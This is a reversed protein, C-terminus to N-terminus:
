LVKTGRLYDSIVLNTVPMDEYKESCLYGKMTVLIRRQTEKQGMKLALIARIERWAPSSAATEDTIKKEPHTDDSEDSPLLPPVATPASEAEVLETVNPATGTPCVALVLTETTFWPEADTTIECTLTLPCDKEAFGCPLRGTVMLGFLVRLKLTCNSGAEAPVAVPWNVIAVLEVLSVGTTTLRAPVPVVVGGAGVTLKLESVQAFVEMRPEDVSLQVTDNLAAAPLLPSVTFRALLSGATVTGAETDTAAPAVLAVNAAATNATPVECVAVSVALAALADSDKASCNCAITGASLTLALLKFKPLTAAFRAVVWVSVKLDVPLEATVTLATWIAPLPKEKEPSPKGTVSLGFAVAVSSTCNSGVTAPAAVPVKVTVLLEDVPGDETTFRLPVPTGTRFWNVQAFPVSFPAPVSLQVTESFAAAPAPPNVNFRALLLLATDTGAVTVTGAPALLALKVAVAVATLEVCVTASVALAPPM